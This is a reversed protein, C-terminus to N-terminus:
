CNQTIKIVCSVFWTLKIWICYPLYPFWNNWLCHFKYSDVSNLLNNVSMGVGKIVLIVAVSHSLCDPAWWYGHFNHSIELCNWAPDSSSLTASPYTKRWTSWNEGTPWYSEVFSWAWEDIMLAVCDRYSVTDSLLVRLFLLATVIRVMKTRSTLFLFFKM